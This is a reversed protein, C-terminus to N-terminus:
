EKCKEVEIVRKVYSKQILIYNDVDRKLDTFNSNFLILISIMHRIKKQDVFHILVLTVEGAM